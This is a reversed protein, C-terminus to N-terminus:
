MCQHCSNWTWSILPPFIFWDRRWNVTESTGIHLVHALSPNLSGSISKSQVTCPFLWTVIRTKLSCLFTSYVAVLVLFAKASFYKENFSLNKRTTQWLCLISLGVTDEWPLFLCKNWNICLSWGEKINCHMSPRSPFPVQMQASANWPERQWNQESGPLYPGWHSLLSYLWVEEAWSWPIKRQVRTASHCSTVALYIM